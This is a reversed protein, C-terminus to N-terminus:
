QHKEVFKKIPVDDQLVELDDIVNDILSQIDKELKFFMKIILYNPEKLPIRLPSHAGLWFYLNQEDGTESSLSGTDYDDLERLTSSWSDFDYRKGPNEISDLILPKMKNLFLVLNSFSQKQNIARNTLSHVVQTQLKDKINSTTSYQSSAVSQSLDSAQSFGFGESIQEEEDIEEDDIIEETMDEHGKFKRRAKEVLYRHYAQFNFIKITIYSFKDAFDFLKDGVSSVLITMLPIASIGWSVFFCRGFPTQPAFDGYGITLLCLFCFYVSNFYSWGECFHFICAGILWYALSFSLSALLSLNTQKIKARKRILRMEHFAEESTLETNTNELEKLRKVRKKEIQHWFITPGGSSLVVQRIMAIILGMMLVGVFSFVLVMVKAGSSKPLIDGLGVTLMSVTCYYLSEGYSLNDIMHALIISGVVLWVMFCITYVMLTRQKPDLNFRAPYKRLKYGIFNISLILACSFYMFTTFVGFWFGESRKYIAHESTFSKNTIFIDALLLSTAIVWSGISISQCILYKAVGNFNMLLSINGIIGFVFSLANLATLRREDSVSSNTVIEVKWHEILGIISILNALPALCASILPFYSSIIFWFIFYDEGPQVTLNTITDLPIELARSIPLPSKKTCVDSTNSYYSHALLPLLKEELKLLKDPTIDHISNGKNKRPTKKSLNM